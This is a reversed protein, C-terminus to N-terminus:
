TNILNDKVKALDIVPNLSFILDDCLDEAKVFFHKALRRFSKIILSFNDGYLM